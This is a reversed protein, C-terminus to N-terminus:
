LQGLEVSITCLFIEGFVSLWVLVIVPGYSVLLGSLGLVPLVM